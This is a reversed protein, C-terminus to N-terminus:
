IRVGRGFLGRPWIQLVLIMLIFVTADQIAATGLGGSL